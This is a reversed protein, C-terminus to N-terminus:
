YPPKQLDATTISVSLGPKKAFVNFFIALRKEPGRFHSESSEWFVGSAEFDKGLSQLM